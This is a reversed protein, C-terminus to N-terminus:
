RSELFQYFFSSIIFNVQERSSIRLSIEMAWSTMEEFFESETRELTSSVTAFPSSVRWAVSRFTPKSVEMGTSAASSPVVVANQSLSCPM